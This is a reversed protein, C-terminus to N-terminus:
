HVVPSTSTDASNGREVGRPLLNGPDYMCAACVRVRTTKGILLVELETGEAAYQPDIYAM